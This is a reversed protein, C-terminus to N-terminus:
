WTKLESCAARLSRSMTAGSPWHRARRGHQRLNRRALDHGTIQELDPRAVQERGVGRELRCDREADVLCGQGALRQGDLLASRIVHRHCSKAPVEITLPTPRATTVAVTPVRLEAGDRVRQHLLRRGGFELQAGTPEAHDDHPGDDPQHQEHEQDAREQPAIRELRQQERQRERDPQGGLEQRHDHGDRQAPAGLPHRLALHDDLPQRRDLM